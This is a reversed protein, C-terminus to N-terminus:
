RKRVVDLPNRCRNGINTLNPTEMCERVRTWVVDGQGLLDRHHTLSLVSLPTRHRLPPLVDVVHSEREEVPEPQVLAGDVPHGTVRLGERRVDGLPVSLEAVRTRRLSGRYSAHVPGVRHLSPDPSPDLGGEVVGPREM